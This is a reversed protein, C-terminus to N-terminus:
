GRNRCAQGPWAPLVPKFHRIAAIGSFATAAMAVITVVVYAALM